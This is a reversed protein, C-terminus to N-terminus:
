TVKKQTELARSRSFNKPTCCGRQTYFPKFYVVLVIALVLSVIIIIIPVDSLSLFSTPRVLFVIFCSNRHLMEIKSM